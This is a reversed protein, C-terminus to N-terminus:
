NKGPETLNLFMTKVKRWKYDSIKIFAKNIGRDAIHLTKSEQWFLTIM